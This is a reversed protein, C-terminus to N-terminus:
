ETANRKHAMGLDELRKNFLEKLRYELLAKEEHLRGDAAAPTYIYMMILTQQVVNYAIKAPLNYSSKMIQNISDIITQAQKDRETENTM